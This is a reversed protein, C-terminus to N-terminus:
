PAARVAAKLPIRAITRQEGRSGAPIWGDRKRPDARAGTGRTDCVLSPILFCPVACLPPILGKHAARTAYILTRTHTGPPLRVPGPGPALSSRYVGKAMDIDVLAAVTVSILAEM